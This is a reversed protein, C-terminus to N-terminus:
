KIIIIGADQVTNKSNKIILVKQNEEIDSSKIVEGNKVILTNGVLNITKRSVDEWEEDDYNYNEVSKLTIADSDIKNITGKLIAPEDEMNVTTIAIAETGESIVYTLCGELEINDNDFSFERINIPGSDTFIRTNGTIDFTSFKKKIEDYEGDVIESFLRLTLSSNDEVDYLIGSYVRIDREEEYPMITVTKAVYEGDKKQATIFLKNNKSIDPIDIIKENEIFLTSEDIYISENSNRLKILSNSIDYSKVNGAFLKESNYIDISIKRAKNLLRSDERAAVYAFKGIHNESLESVDIVKGYFTVDVNKDLPITIFSSNSTIWKGDEYSQTNKLTITDYILSIDSIVGKYLGELTREDEVIEFKVLVSDSTYIKAYEGKLLSTYRTEIGDKYVPVNILNYEKTEGTEESKVTVSFDDIKIITGYTIVYNSIARISIINEIKDLEIYVTDGAVIDLSSTKVNDKYFNTYSGYSYTNEIGDKNLIVIQEFYPSNSVVIGQVSKIDAVYDINNNSGEIGEDIVRMFKVQKDSTVYYEVDDNAKVSTKGTLNGRRLIPFNTESVDIKIDNGKEDILNINTSSVSNVIGKKKIIKMNSLIYEEANKLIQAMEERTLSSKPNFMNDDTGRMIGVEVVAKVYKLHKDAIQANDLFELEKTGTLDLARSVMGAVEERTIPIDRILVNANKLADINTTSKIDAKDMVTKETVIGNKRAYRIYKSSWTDNNTINIAQNVEEDKGMAKLLLTIAQENTVSSNPLFTKDTFGSVVGFAAMQYIAPKSWYDASKNQLDKFNINSIVTDGNTLGYYTIDDVAYAGVNFALLAAMLFCSKKM